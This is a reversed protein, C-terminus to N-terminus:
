QEPFIYSFFDKQYNPGLDVKSQNSLLIVNGDVAVVKDMNVVFSRHVRLFEAGFLRGEIEKLSCHTIHLKDEMHIKTYNGAGEVFFVENMMVKIFRGKGNGQIFFYDRRVEGLERVPFLEKLGAFVEEDDIILCRIAM